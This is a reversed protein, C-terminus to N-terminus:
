SSSGMGKAKLNEDITSTNAAEIGSDRGAKQMAGELAAQAYANYAIDMLGMIPVLLVPALIAFERRLSAATTGRLRRLMARAGATM